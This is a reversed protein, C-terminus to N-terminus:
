GSNLSLEQPLIKCLASERYPFQILREQRVAQLHPPGTAVSTFPGGGVSYYVICGSPGSNSRRTATSISSLSVKYGAAAQFTFYFSNSDSQSTSWGGSGGWCGGAASGSTSIGSGRVLGSTQLNANRTSPTRPSVGFGGGNNNADWGLIEAYDSVPYLLFIIFLFPVIFRKHLATNM